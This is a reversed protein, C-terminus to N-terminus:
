PHIDKHIYLINNEQSKLLDYMKIRLSFVSESNTAYIHIFKEGILTLGSTITMLFIFSNWDFSPRLEITFFESLILLLLLTVIWTISNKKKM